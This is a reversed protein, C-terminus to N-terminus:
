SSKRRNYECKDGRLDGVQSKRRNHPGMARTKEVIEGRGERGEEEEEKGEFWRAQAQRREGLSEPNRGL